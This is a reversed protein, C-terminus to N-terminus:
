NDSLRSRLLLLHLIQMLLSLIKSGFQLADLLLELRLLLFDLLEHVLHVRDLLGHLRLVLLVTLDLILHLLQLFLTLENGLHELILSVSNISIKKRLIYMNVM